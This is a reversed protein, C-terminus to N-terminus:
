DVSGNEVAVSGIMAPTSSLEDQRRYLHYLTRFSYDNWNDQQLAFAADFPGVDGRRPPFVSVVM